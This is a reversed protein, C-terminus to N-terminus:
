KRMRAVPYGLQERYKAVTRRAVKYGKQNLMACLDQDNLPNSKDENNIAETIISRIEHSSVEEGTTTTLSESFFFKLPIIGYPTLVYKQKVVRSITSIDAEVISAIDKLIMPKIKMEDGTFFYEEQKNMIASITRYLTQERQSLADIFWQAANLKQKVFDMAARRDTESMSNKSKIEDYMQQYRHSVKLEPLDSKPMTLELKHKREDITVIFDPTVMSVEDAYASSEGPKPNLSTTIYNITREFEEDDCKLASKIKNFHKKTFDNFYKSIIRQALSSEPTPPQIHQLQLLLCEQLNRAGTGIPELRQIVTTIIHEIHEATTSINMSFLIDNVLDESSRSIYGGADICGVIFTAIKKDEEQLPMMNLQAILDEQYSDGSVYSSKKYNIKENQEDANQNNAAPIYDDYDDRLYEEWDEMDNGNENEENAPNDDMKENLIDNTNDESKDEKTDNKDDIELAPNSELEENIRQEMMITPIQLLKMLLIQRPSLRQIMIQEQRQSIEQM